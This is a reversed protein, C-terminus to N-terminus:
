NVLYCGGEKESRYATDAPIVSRQKYYDWPYRSESPKKVEFLYLKHIKRGDQRIRGTGFLPDDTSMEKMKAVVKGADDSQVKEAAKLYHLVGAYVGAQLSTPMSKHQDFFRKSWARTKENLDWYFSETLLLGQAKELGIKHVDTLLVIPAAFQQGNKGIGLQVGQEIAASTDQGATNLGIIKAKSEIAKKLFPTFDRSTLPFPYIIRDVIQGGAERVANETDKMLTHGYNYDPTVFAWTKGGTLTVISGTSHSQSWTDIAWQVTYPSCAKGTLDSTAVGSTVLAKKRERAIENVALGVASGAIDVIADVKDKDFWQRAIESGIDVNNQHDAVIVEVKMGKREANFDKIAMNAAVVTGPGTMLSYPGKLDTLIGLKIVGDSFEAGYSPTLVLMSLLWGLPFKKM